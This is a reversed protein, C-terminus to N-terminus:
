EYKKIVDNIEDLSSISHAKGDIEVVPGLACRGLCNRSELSFSQDLDTEGPGIGIIDVIKEMVNQSGRSHCATGNCVNIVHEGKPVVRFAKYFTATQQVGGLPIQLKESVRELIRKSLWGSEEQIDLLLQILSSAKCQHKEIIQDIKAEDM